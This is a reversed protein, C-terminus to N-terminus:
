SRLALRAVLFLKRFVGAFLFLASRCIFRFCIRIAIRIIFRLM